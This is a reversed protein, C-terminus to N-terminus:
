WSPNNRAQEYVDPERQTNELMEEIYTMISKVAEANGNAKALKMASSEVLGTNNMGSIWNLVLEDLSAELTLMLSKSCPHDRWALVEDKTVGSLHLNAKRYLEEPNYKHVQQM